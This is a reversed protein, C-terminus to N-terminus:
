QGDQSASPQVEPVQHIDGVAEAREGRLVKNGFSDSLENSHLMLSNALAQVAASPKRPASAAPHPTPSASSEETSASRQEEEGSPPAHLGALVQRIRPVLADDPHAKVFAKFDHEADASDERKLYIVARGLLAQADTPRRELVFNFDDLAQDWRDTEYYVAGRLARADLLESNLRVADSLDMLAGDTSKLYHRCAGRAYYAEAFSDDDSIAEDFQAIAENFKKANFLQVGDNFAKIAAQPHTPQEEGWSRFSLVLFSSGLVIFSLFGRIYFCVKRECNVTRLEGNKTETKFM